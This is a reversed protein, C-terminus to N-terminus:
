SHGFAHASEQPASRIGSSQLTAFTGPALPNGPVINLRGPAPVGIIKMDQFITGLLPSSGGRGFDSTGSVLADVLE